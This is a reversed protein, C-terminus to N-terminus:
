CRLERYRLKGQVLPREDDPTVMDGKAKVLVDLERLRSDLAACQQRVEPELEARRALKARDQPPTAHRPSSRAQGQSLNRGGTCPVDTYTVGNRSGCKYTAGQASGQAALLLLLAAGTAGLWRSTM